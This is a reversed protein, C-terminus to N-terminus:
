IEKVGSVQKIIKQQIYKKNRQKYHYMAADAVKFTETLSQTEGQDRCAVGVSLYLCFQPEIRRIKKAKLMIEQRIEKIQEWSAPALLVVFEDGGIRATMAEKPCSEGIIKAAMQIMQDGFRHGLQDNMIKLGDIDCVVIGVSEDGSELRGMKQEFFARNYIGCLPDHFGIYKLKDNADVLEATVTNILHTLAKFVEARRQILKDTSFPDAVDTAREQEVQSQLTEEIETLVGVTMTANLVHNTGQCYFFEGYTYFGATTAIKQLPETEIKSLEQLFARRCECSYVFISQVPHRTIKRCLLDISESILEVDCFSLRVREGVAFEEEFTISDDDHYFNPTRAVLTGQREVVLPYELANAFHLDDLGLYNRYVQYAPLHDITYVRRGEVQTILMEKGIPQWGLSSYCRVQLDDGSLVVGIVGCDTIQNQGFVLGSFGHYGANGGVIPVNSFGTEIGRLISQSHIKGGTSFLILLKAESDNIKRAIKQGLEFDSEDSKHFFVPNLRTRAFSSFSLVTKLGSVKGNMIEGSTTTGLVVAHPVLEKLEALLQAFFSRDGQGSFVQILLASDHSSFLFDRHHDVFEALGVFNEYYVNITKM